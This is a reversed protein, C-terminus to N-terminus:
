KIFNTKGEGNDQSDRREHNCTHYPVLGPATKETRIKAASRNHLQGKSIRMGRLVIDLLRETGDRLKASCGITCGALAVDDYPGVFYAFFSPETDNSRQLFLIWFHVLLAKVVNTGADALLEFVLADLRDDDQEDDDRDINGNDETGHAPHERRPGQTNGGDHRQDMVHDNRDTNEREQSVVPTHFNAGDKNRREQRDQPVGNGVGNDDKVTDTFIHDAKTGFLGKALEYVATDFLGKGARDVGRHRGEQAQERNEKKAPFGDLIKGKREDDTDDGTRIRGHKYSRRDYHPPMVTETAFCFGSKSMEKM